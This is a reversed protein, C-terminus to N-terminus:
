KAEKYNIKYSCHKCRMNGDGNGLLHHYHSVVKPTLQNLAKTLENGLKQNNM